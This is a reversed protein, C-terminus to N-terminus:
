RSQYALRLLDVLQLFNADIAYKEPTQIIKIRDLISRLVVIALALSGKTEYQITRVLHLQLRPQMQEVHPIRLLMDPLVPQVFAHLHSPLANYGRVSARRGNITKRSM